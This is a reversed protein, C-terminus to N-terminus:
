YGARQDEVSDMQAVASFARQGWVRVKEVQDRYWPSEQPRTLIRQLRAWHVGTGGLDMDDFSEEGVDRDFKVRYRLAAVDLTTPWGQDLGHPVTTREDEHRMCAGVTQQGPVHGFTRHYLDLLSQMRGEFSKTMRQPLRNSCFPCIRLDKVSRPVAEPDLVDSVRSKSERPRVVPLDFSGPGESPIRTPLRLKATNTTNSGQQPQQLDAYAPFTDVADIAARTDESLVYKKLQVRSSRSPNREKATLASEGDRPSSGLNLQGLASGDFTTDEERNAKRTFSSPIRLQAPARGVKSPGPRPLSPDSDDDGDDDDDDLPSSARVLTSKNHDTRTLARKTVPQAPPSNDMGMTKDVKHAHASSRVPQVRNTPTQLSRKKTPPPLDDLDDVSPDLLDQDRHMTPPLRIRATSRSTGVNSTPARVPRREQTWEAPSHESSGWDDYPIRCTNTSGTVAKRKTAGTVSPRPAQYVKATSGSVAPRASTPTPRPNHMNPRATSTSAGHTQTQSDDDDSLDSSPPRQRRKQALFKSRSLHISSM